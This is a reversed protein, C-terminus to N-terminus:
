KFGVGANVKLKVKNLDYVNEMIKQIKAKTEKVKDNKIEFLLEDHISLLLVADKVKSTKIMALKIIDAGLSQVPMNVAMREAEAALYRNQSLLAPLWRKRGNSNEVYGKLRAEQKIKEQWIKIEKFEEFYEKIFKKAEQASVGSAKAFALYGMGYIIGFNLVKALRRMPPTVKSLPVNLVRSATLSHIDKDEQFAKIMQPDQSLAALIRLELQSYDFHALVYGPDAIFVQKVVPPINQLNPNQSSLRGTATGTQLLTTHVREGCKLLPEIYTSLIKFSERYKLVLEVLLCQDRSQKLIEARTSTIKLRFKNNLIDLLQAPSNINFKKGAEKYIKKELGDIEKQLKNKLTQLRKQDLKIGTKKIDALVKILPLEIQRYVYDLGLEKVQDEAFNLDYDPPNDPNLLWNAIKRKQEKTAM